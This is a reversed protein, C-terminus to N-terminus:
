GRNPASSAGTRRAFAHTLQDITFVSTFRAYFLFQCNGRFIAAALMEIRVVIRIAIPIKEVAAVACALLSLLSKSPAPPFLLM